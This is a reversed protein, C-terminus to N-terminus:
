WWCLWVWGLFLLWVRCYDEYICVCSSRTNTYFM